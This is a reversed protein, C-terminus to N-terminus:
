SVFLKSIAGLMRSLLRLMAGRCQLLFCQLQLLFYRTLARRAAHRAIRKLAKRIIRDHLAARRASVRREARDAPDISSLSRDELGGGQGAGFVNKSAHVATRDSDRHSKLAPCYTDYIPHTANSM